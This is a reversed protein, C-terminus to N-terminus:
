LLEENLNIIEQKKERESTIDIALELTAPLQGASFPFPTKSTQFYKRTGDPMYLEEQYNLMEGGTKEDTKTDINSVYIWGAPLPPELHDLLEDVEKSYFRAAAANALIINGSSDKAFFRHPVLDIAQRLRKEASRLKIQTHVRALLEKAKFPKLIYDVGGLQFALDIDEEENKATLFIIPISRTKPDQKLDQTLEFGSKGPMAIDLLILDPQKEICVQLVNEAKDALLLRYYPNLISAVLQLNIHEDDVVLVTYKFAKTNFDNNM